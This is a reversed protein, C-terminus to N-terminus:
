LGLIQRILTSFGLECSVIVSRNAVKIEKKKLFRSSRGMGLCWFLNTRCLVIFAALNEAIFHINSRMRCKIAAYKFFGADPCSGIVGV